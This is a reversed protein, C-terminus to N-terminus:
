PLLLELAVCSIGNRIRSNAPDTIASRDPAPRRARMAARAALALTLFLAAACAGPVIALYWGSWDYHELAPLPKMGAAIPGPAISQRWASWIYQEIAPMLHSDLWIWSTGVVLSCLLILAALAALTKYRQRAMSSAVFAALVVIPIGALSGLVFELKASPVLADPRTAIAPEMALFAILPVAAAVPLAMLARMSWPRGGAALRLILLPLVVNLLALGAVALFGLPSAPSGSASLWPLPKEWRPDNRELDPRSSPAAFM